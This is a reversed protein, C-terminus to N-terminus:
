ARRGTSRPMCVLSNGRTSMSVIGYRAPPCDTADTIGGLHRYHDDVRLLQGSALPLAHQLEGALVHRAQKAGKGRLACIAGSKGQQCNLSFGFMNVTREVESSVEQLDDLLQVPDKRIIAVALDDVLSVTPMRLQAANPHADELVLPRGVDYDGFVEVGDPLEKLSFAGGCAEVAMEVERVVGAFILHFFDGASRLGM